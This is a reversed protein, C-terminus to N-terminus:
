AVNDTNQQRGPTPPGTARRRPRPYPRSYLDPVTGGARLVRRETLRADVGGVVEPSAEAVSTRFRSRKPTGSRTAIFSVPCLVRLTHLRVVDHRVIGEILVCLSLGIM